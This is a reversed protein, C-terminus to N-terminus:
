VLDSRRLDQSGPYHLQHVVHEQMGVCTHTCPHHGYGIVAPSMVELGMANLHHPLAGGGVWVFTETTPQDVAGLSYCCLCPTLPFTTGVAKERWLEQNWGLAKAKWGVLGDIGGVLVMTSGILDDRSPSAMSAKWAPLGGGVSSGSM